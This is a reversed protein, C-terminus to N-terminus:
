VLILRVVDDMSHLTGVDTLLTYINNWVKSQKRNPQGLVFSNNSIRKRYNRQRTVGVERLQHGKTNVCIVMNSHAMIVTVSSRSRIAIVKSSETTKNKFQFRQVGEPTNLCYKCCTELLFRQFSIKPYLSVNYGRPISLPCVLGTLAAPQIIFIWHKSLM